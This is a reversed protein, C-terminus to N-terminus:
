NNACKHLTDMRRVRTANRELLQAALHSFLHTITVVSNVTVLPHIKKFRSKGSLTFHVNPVRLQQHILSTNRYNLQRSHVAIIM